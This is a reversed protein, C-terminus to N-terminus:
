LPQLVQTFIVEPLKQLEKEKLFAIDKHVVVANGIFSPIPKAWSGLSLPQTDRTYYVIIFDDSSM